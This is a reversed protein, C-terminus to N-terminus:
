IEKQLAEVLKDKDCMDIIDDISCINNAVGSLVVGELLRSIQPKRTKYPISIINRLTIAVYYRQNHIIGRIHRAWVPVLSDSYELIDDNSNVVNKLEDIDIDVSGVVM